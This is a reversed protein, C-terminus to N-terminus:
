GPAYHELFGCRRCRWTQIEIKTQTRTKLGFWKSRRPAGEVWRSVRHGGSSDRDIVFGETMSSACKPCTNSRM